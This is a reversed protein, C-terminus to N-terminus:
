DPMFLTDLLIVAAPSPVQRAEGAITERIPPIIVKKMGIKMGITSGITPKPFRSHQVTVVTVEGDLTVGLSAEAPSTDDVDM